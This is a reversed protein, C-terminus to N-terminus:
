CWACAMETDPGDPKPRSALCDAVLRAAHDAATQVSAATTGLVRAAAADDLGVVERLLLTEALDPPLASLVRRANDTGGARAGAPGPRPHHRVQRRALSAAWARFDAGDGQFTFVGYAIERWLASAAEAARDDDGLRATLYGLLAPHLTRYVTKFGEESGHRARAM